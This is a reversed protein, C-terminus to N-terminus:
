GDFWSTRIDLSSFRVTDKTSLCVQTEESREEKEQWTQETLNVQQSVEAQPIGGTSSSVQDNVYDVLIVSLLARVKEM